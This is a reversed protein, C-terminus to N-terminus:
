VQKIKKATRKYMREFARWESDKRYGIYFIFGIVWLAKIFYRM